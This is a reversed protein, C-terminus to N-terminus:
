STWWSSLGVIWAWFLVLLVLGVGKCLLDFLGKAWVTLINFM